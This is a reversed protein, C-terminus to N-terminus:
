RAPEVTGTAQDYWWGVGVSGPAGVSTRGGAGPPLRMLYPGFKTGDAWAEGQADTFGLIQAGFREPGPLLGDHEEAFLEIAHEIARASAAVTERETDEDSAVAVSLSPRVALGVGGLAILGVITGIRRSRTIPM